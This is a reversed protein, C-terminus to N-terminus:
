DAGQPTHDVWTDPEMCRTSCLNGDQWFDYSYKCALRTWHYAQDTLEDPFGHFLLYWKTSRCFEWLSTKRHGGLHKQFIEVIEILKNIKHIKEEKDMLQRRLIAQYFDKNEGIYNKVTDNNNRITELCNLEKYKVAYLFTIAYDYAYQYRYIRQNELRKM